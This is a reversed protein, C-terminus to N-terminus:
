FVLQRVLEELGTGIRVAASKHFLLLGVVKSEEALLIQLFNHRCVVTMQKTSGADAQRLRGGAQLGADPDQVGQVLHPQLLQVDEELLTLEHFGQLYKVRCVCTHLLPRWLGHAFSQLGQALTQRLRRVQFLQGDLGRDKGAAQEQESGM